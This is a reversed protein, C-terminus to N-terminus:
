KASAATGPAPAGPHSSAETPMSGADLLLETFQEAVRGLERGRRRVIGVPRTFEVDALPVAVLTGLQVERAVTPEPLLSVGAGIEVARKITEINDFEMRVETGLGHLVRDTERRIKLDPDFGVLTAGSLASLEVSGLAALESQPSCVLM